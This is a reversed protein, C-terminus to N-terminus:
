VGASAYLVTYPDNYRISSYGKSALIPQIKEFNEEKHYTAIALNKVRKGDLSRTMGKVMEVEANEVDAALLDVRSVRLDELINDVTDVEVEFREFPASLIVPMLACGRSDYTVGLEGKGRCSWVAKKILTINNLGEARVVEEIKSANSPSPEILIVKGNVGVKASAIRGYRGWFAGAELYIDGQKLHYFREWNHEVTDSSSM